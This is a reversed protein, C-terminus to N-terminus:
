GLGGRGVDRGEGGTGKGKRAKKWDGKEGVVGMGSGRRGEGGEGALDIM